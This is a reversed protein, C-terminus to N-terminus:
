DNTLIEQQQQTQQQYTEIGKEFIALYQKAVAEWTYRSMAEQSVRANEQAIEPNDLLHLIARAIDKSERPEFLEAKVGLYDLQNQFAPIDSMVMPVGLQWADVGSGSGAECLSANIVMKAGQMITYFDNDSLLGLGKVEYAPNQIDDEGLFWDAYYPCNVTGVIGETENGTLILKLNPYHQKALYYAGLVQGLNKHLSANNAFLVYPTDPNIGFQTLVSAVCEKEVPQFENFSSLYVVNISEAHQPFTQKFEDAIYNSSVIPIANSGLFQTYCAHLKIADERAYLASGFHHRYIFDHPIFFLPKSIKPVEQFAPWPYHVIDFENLYETFSNKKFLKQLKLRKKQAVRLKRFKNYLQNLAENKFKQKPHYITSELGQLNIVKVGIAVLGTLFEPPSSHLYNYFMTIEHAPNLQKIAKSLYYLYKATGTSAWPNVFAIKM